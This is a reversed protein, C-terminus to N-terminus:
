TVTEQLPINWQGLVAPDFHVGCDAQMVDRVIWCPSVNSLADPKTDKAIGGSVDTPILLLSRSRDVRSALALGQGEGRLPSCTLRVKRHLVTHLMHEGQNWEVSTEREGIVEM